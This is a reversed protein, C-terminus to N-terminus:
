ILGDLAACQRLDERSFFIHPVKSPQVHIQERKVGVATTHTLKRSCLVYAETRAEPTSVNATMEDESDISTTM